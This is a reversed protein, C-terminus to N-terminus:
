SEEKWNTQVTQVSGGPLPDQRSVQLLVQDRSKHDVELDTQTFLFPSHEQSGRTHVPHFLRHHLHHPVHFDSISVKLASILLDVM